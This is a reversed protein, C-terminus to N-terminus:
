GAREHQQSWGARAPQRGAQSFRHTRLQAYPLGPGAPVEGWRLSCGTEELRLLLWGNQLVFYLCLNLSCTLPKFGSLGWGEGSTCGLLELCCPPEYKDNNTDYIHTWPPASSAARMGHVSRVATGFSALSVTWEPCCCGPLRGSMMATWMSAAGTSPTSWPWVCGSWSLRCCWSRGAPPPLPVPETGASSSTSSLCQSFGAQCWILM